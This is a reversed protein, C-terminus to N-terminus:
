YTWSKLTKSLDDIFIARETSILHTGVKLNSEQELESNGKAENSVASYHEVSNQILRYNVSLTSSVDSLNAELDDLYEVGLQLQEELHEYLSDGVSSGYYQSLVRRAINYRLCVLIWRLVRALEVDIQTLRSDNKDNRIRRMIMSNVIAPVASLNRPTKLESFPNRTTSMGARKLILSARDYDDPVNMFAHVDVPDFLAAVAPDGDMALAYMIMVPDHVGPVYRQRIFPAVLQRRVQRARDGATIQLYTDLLRGHDPRTIYNSIESEAVREEVLKWLLSGRGVRSATEVLSACDDEFQWVSSIDHDTSVANIARKLKQIWDLAIDRREDLIHHEFLAIDYLRHVIAIAEVTQLSHENHECYQLIDEAVMKEFTLLARGSFSEAPCGRESLLGGGRVLMEETQCAAGARGYILRFARRMSSTTPLANTVSEAFADKLNVAIAALRGWRGPAQEHRQWSYADFDKVGGTSYADSLRHVSSFAHTNM